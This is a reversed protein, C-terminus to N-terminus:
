PKHAKVVVFDGRDYGPTPQEIAANSYKPHRTLTQVFELEVFGAAKVWNVIENTSCWRAEGIFKLPYPYDPSIDPDFKQRIAALEYLMAYTGERPLYSVIVHGGPKLARYAEDLAKQPDAVYSLITGLLVNDLTSEAYPLAEAPACEVTMGRKRALAAMGSAPEVGQKIGLRVDFIGSGCGISVTSEPETVFYALAALESEFVEHNKSFWLDFDDATEKFAIPSKAFEVVPQRSDSHEVYSCLVRDAQYLLYALHNTPGHGSGIRLSYKIATAVFQKARLTADLIGMGDALGAAIAAAFTCGTGHTDSTPFRPSQLLYFREGDYLVDIADGLLHGGKVIVYKPGLNKIISAARKADQISTITIGSLVEAELANPTVVYALPLLVTKLATISDKRLLSAGGKAIMVPDVVLKEVRYQEFKRAVLTIIPADALMGTKAADIGLDQAVADFQKEIFDLPVPHIGVVGLTNQATLATIVSMGFAGLVTITKLDAQIGAGGGSDSGAVTLVRSLTMM